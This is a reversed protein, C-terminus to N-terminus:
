PMSTWPPAADELHIEHIDCPESACQSSSAPGGTAGPGKDGSCGQPKQKADDSGRSGASLTDAENGGPTPNPEKEQQQKKWRVLNNKFWGKIVAVDLQLRAALAHVTDWDLQKTESFVDRLVRLQGEGFRTRQWCAHHPRESM